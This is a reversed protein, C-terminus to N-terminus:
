LGVRGILHGSAAGSLLYSVTMPALLGGLAALPLGFSGRIYPWAVGLAGTPLGLLVFSALAVGATRPPIPM